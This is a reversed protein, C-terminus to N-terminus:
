DPVVAQSIGAEPQPYRMDLQELTDVIIRAVVLNRYWKKNAPVIYWPAWPTSCRTLAEEYARQYDEWYAREAVDGLSFKWQKRPTDRREELRRKQEDKSIHLFFKLITTGTDALLKEFDNIQDYRKRWVSEPVLNHVRVVLVDEYHSRNFIGIYRRGPVRQHIRWLYDHALEEPTPVKFSHVQCGQPNIGRMVHKIVGDKGGTDMAQLVILLRHKDEAYLVDQLEALRRRLRKLEKKVEGKRTFEGSDNPDWEALKIEQGPKVMYREKWTIEEPHGTPTPKENM